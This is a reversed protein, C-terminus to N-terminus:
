GVKYNEGVKKRPLRRLECVPKLSETKSYFIDRGTKCTKVEELHVHGNPMQSHRAPLWFFLRPHTISKLQCHRPFLLYRFSSFSHSTSKTDFLQFKNYIKGLRYTSKGWLVPIMTYMTEYWVSSLQTRGGQLVM